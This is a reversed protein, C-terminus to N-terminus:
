RLFTRTRRERETREVEARAGASEDREFNRVLSTERKATIVVVPLSGERTQEASAHMHAESSSVDSSYQGCAALLSAIAVVCASHLQNLKM